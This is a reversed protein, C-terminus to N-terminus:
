KKAKDEAIAKKDQKAQAIGAGSLHPSPETETDPAGGQDPDTGAASPQVEPPPPPGERDAASRQIIEGTPLEIVPEFDPSEGAKPVRSTLANYEIEADDGFHARAEDESGSYDSVLAILEDDGDIVAEAGKGLRDLRGLLQARHSATKPTRVLVSAM